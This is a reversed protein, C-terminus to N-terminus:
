IGQKLSASIFDEKVTMQERLQTNIFVDPIVEKKWPFRTWLHNEAEQFTRQFLESRAFDQITEARWPNAVAAQPNTPNTM